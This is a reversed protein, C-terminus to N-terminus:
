CDERLGTLLPSKELFGAAFYVTQKTNIGRSFMFWTVIKFGEVQKNKMMMM